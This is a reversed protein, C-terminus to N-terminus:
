KRITENADLLRVCVVGRRGTVTLACMPEPRFGAACLLDFAAKPDPVAVELTIRQQRSLVTELSCGLIIYPVSKQYLAKGLNRVAKEVAIVQRFPLLLFEGSCDLLAAFEVADNTCGFIPTANGTFVPSAASRSSRLGSHNRCVHQRSAGYPM